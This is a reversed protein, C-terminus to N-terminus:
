NVKLQSNAGSINSGKGFRKRFKKAKKKNKNRRGPKAKKTTTIDIFTM